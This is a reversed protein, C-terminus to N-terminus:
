RCSCVSGRSIRSSVLLVEIGLNFSILRTRHYYPTTDKFDFSGRNRSRFMLGVHKHFVEDTIIRSILLVEIALNFGPCDHTRGRNRKCKFDFSGRNRSQFGPLGM